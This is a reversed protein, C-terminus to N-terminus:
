KSVEQSTPGFEVGPLEGSITFGGDATIAEGTVYRGDDSALFTFVGAIWEPRGLQGLPIRDEFAKQIPPTFMPETLPTRIHGPLVCNVTIAHRGLEIALSRTFGILGAKAASYAAQLSRSQLALLSSTHLIRGGRGQSVMQRAAERSGYFPGYLDVRIMRDWEEDSMDVVERQLVAAANNVLIDLGGFRSVAEAVMRRNTEPASVDGGLAHAAGGAARIEGVVKEAAGANQDVVVLSAGEESFRLCTARGIGSGGGTVIAVKKELKM